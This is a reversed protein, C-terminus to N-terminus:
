KKNKELELELKFIVLEDLELELELEIVNLWPEVRYPWFEVRSPENAGRISLTYIIMMPDIVCTYFKFKFNAYNDNMWHETYSLNIWLYYQFTLFLIYDNFNSLLISEKKKARNNASIKKYNKWWSWWWWMLSWHRTCTSPAIRTWRTM